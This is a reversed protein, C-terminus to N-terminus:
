NLTLANAENTLAIFKDELNEIAIDIGELFLENVKGALEARAKQKQRIEIRINNAMIFLETAKINKEARTMPKPPADIVKAFQEANTL